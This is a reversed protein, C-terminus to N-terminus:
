DNSRKGSLNRPQLRCTLRELLTLMESSTFHATMALLDTSFFSVDIIENSPTTFEASAYLRCLVDANDHPIPYCVKM